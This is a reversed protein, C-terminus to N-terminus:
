TRVWVTESAPARRHGHSRGLSERLHRGGQDSPTALYALVSRCSLHVVSSISRSHFRFRSQASLGPLRPKYRPSHRASSNRTGCIKRCCHHDVIVSLFVMLIRVTSSWGKNRSPIAATRELSTSIASI